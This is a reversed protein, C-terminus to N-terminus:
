RTQFIASHNWLINSSRGVEDGKDVFAQFASFLAGYGGITILVEKLPDIDVGFLPSFLTSLNKVLRPHGQLTVCPVDIASCKRVVINQASLWWKVYFEVFLTWHVLVLLTSPVDNGSKKQFPFIMKRSRWTAGFIPMEKDNKIFAKVVSFFRVINFASLWM